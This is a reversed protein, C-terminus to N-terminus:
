AGVVCFLNGVPDALTVWDEVDAVHTAGLGLLREAEAAVGPASVDVHVRAAADVSQVGLTVPGGPGIVGPLVTYPSGPETLPEPWGDLASAWWGVEAEVSAAPVDLFVADLYGYGGRRPAVRTPAAADPDIVCHPLGAPDLVVTYGGDFTAVERGGAAVLRAVEVDRSGGASGLDRSGGTVELDLHYGPAGATLSQVHVEVVSTADVLHTFAGPGDVPEASLVRSWFATVLAADPAPVDIQLIRVRLSM